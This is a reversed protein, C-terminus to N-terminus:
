STEFHEFKFIKGLPFTVRSFTKLCMNVYKYKGTQSLIIIDQKLNTLNLSPNQM